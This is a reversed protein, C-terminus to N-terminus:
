AIENCSQRKAEEIVATVIQRVTECVEINPFKVTLSSNYGSREWPNDFTFYGKEMLLHVYLDSFDENWIEHIIMNKLGDMHSQDIETLHRVVIMVNQASEKVLQKTVREELLVRFVNEGRTHSLYSKLEGSRLFNLVSRTNYIHVSLDPSTYGDYWMKIDQRHSQMKKFAARGLLDDVETETLGFFDKFTEDQLFKVCQLSELDVLPKMSVCTTGTMITTNVHENHILVGSLIANYFGFVEVIELSKTFISDLIVSDYDDILLIVQKGHHRELLQSLVYLGVSIQIPKLTRYQEKDTYSKLERFDNKTLHPSDALYHHQLFTKYLVDRFAAVMSDYDTVPSIPKFSCHIVPHSNFHTNFFSEEASLKTNRFVDQAQKKDVTTSLFMRIMDLNTSKGFGSPAAVILTEANHLLEKILITKDVFEHTKRVEFFDASDVITSCFSCQITIIISFLVLVIVM